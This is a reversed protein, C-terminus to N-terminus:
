GGALIGDGEVHKGSDEVVRDGAVESGPLNLRSLGSGNGLGGPFPGM